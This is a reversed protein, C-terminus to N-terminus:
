AAPYFAVSGLKAVIDDSAAGIGAATGTLKVVQTNGLTLGTLEGVATYSSSSAGQTALSVMYRVVSASVRIFTAYVTWASSLSLSLAGTDFIMTGGFYLKVQRTATGSSVFSGGYQAEIKDGNNALQGAALTDPYLDTESTGSNGVNTYHDFLTDPPTYSLATTVDGSTLSVAGTRTNFSDVGTATANYTLLWNIATGARRVWEPLNATTVPIHPITM